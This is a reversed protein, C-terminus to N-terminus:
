LDVLDQAIRASPKIFACFNMEIAWHLKQSPWTIVGSQATQKEKWNKELTKSERKNQRKRRFYTNLPLLGSLLSAVGQTKGPDEVFMERVAQNYNDTVFNARLQRQFRILHLHQQEQTLSSTSSVGVRGIADDLHRKISMEQINSVYPTTLAIPEKVLVLPGMDQSSLALVDFVVSLCVCYADCAM